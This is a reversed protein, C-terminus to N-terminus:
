AFASAPWAIGTLLGLVVEIMALAADRPIAVLSNDAQDTSRPPPLTKRALLNVAGIVRKQSDRLPNAYAIGCTRSGDQREILIEQGNFPKDDLLALAMWCEHHPMPRGDSFYLRHSGCYREASDRLKAARGWVAEALPNFYTIRGAADCTYAAVPLLAM